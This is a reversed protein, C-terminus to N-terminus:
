KKAAEVKTCGKKSRQSKTRLKSLRKTETRLKNLFEEEDAMFMDHSKGEDEALDMLIDICQRIGTLRGEALLWDSNDVEDEENSSSKSAPYMEHELEDYALHFRRHLERLIEFTASYRQSTYNRNLYEQRLKDADPVSM